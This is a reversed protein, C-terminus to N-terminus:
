QTKKYLEIRNIWDFQKQLAMTTIQYDAPIIANEDFLIEISLTAGKYHLYLRQYHALNSNALASEVESRKPMLLTKAQINDPEFDIHLTVDTIEDHTKKLNAASNDNLQHAESVTLFPSVQIHADIFVDNGMLRTRIMHVDDIANSSLLTTKYADLKDQPVGRDVLDQTANWTLGVGMKGILVAVALAAVYELIPYGAMSALIGFFVVVSSLSDSRSHWANAELLNSNTAKAHKMSYHFLAEKSIISVLVALLSLWHPTISEGQWAAMVNDYAIGIAVAVLTAGLAVTGITEYRAHGYPHDEDPGHQAMNGLILALIDTALDSLSHVGDAILAPSRTIFGITLKLTSLLADVVSCVWNVKAIVAYRQKSSLTPDTM